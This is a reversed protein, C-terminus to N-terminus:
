AQLEEFIGEGTLCLSHKSNIRISFGAEAGLSDNVCLAYFVLKKRPTFGSEGIRVMALYFSIGAFIDTEMKAVGVGEQKRGIERDRGKGV